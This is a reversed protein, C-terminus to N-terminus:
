RGRGGPAIGARRMHEAIPLGDVTCAAIVRDYSQTQGNHGREVTCTARRGVLRDMARKAERGGLDHLEPAFWRAERIELWQSPDRGLALCFSDGDGVYIIPASVRQGPRYGSVPAECPDAAAVGAILTFAAAAGLRAILGITSM